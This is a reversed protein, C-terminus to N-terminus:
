YFVDCLIILKILKCCEISVFGRVGCQQNTLEILNCDMLSFETGRCNVGYFHVVPM